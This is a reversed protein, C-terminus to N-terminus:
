DRQDTAPAGTSSVEWTALTAGTAPNAIAVQDLAVVILCVPRGNAPMSARCLVPGNGPALTVRGALRLRLGQDLRLADPAVREVAEFPEGDRRGVRSEAAGHVQVVALTSETPASASPDRAPPCAEGSTWPRDIWFGEILDVQATREAGLWAAPEFRAPQASVRLVSRDRDYRWGLPAEDAAPGSCGFPLSLEFRRGDLAAVEPPLPRGAAFADVAIRAADLLEARGLPPEVVPLLPPPSPSPAPAPAASPAAIPAEPRAVTARGLVFGAGALAIAVAAGGALARRSSARSPEMM